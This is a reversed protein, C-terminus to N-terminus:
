LNYRPIEIGGIGEVKGVESLPEDPEHLYNFIFYRLSDPYDDNKKDPVQKFIGRDSRIEKWSYLEIEKLADVLHGSITWKPKNTIPNIQMVEAVKAIGLEVDKRTELMPWSKRYLEEILDPRAPDPFIGQITLGKTQTHMLEDVEGITKGEVGFGDFTFIENNHNIEHWLVATKHGTAFGFDISGYITAEKKPSRRPQIHIPGFDKWVAGQRYTFEALYEQGFMDPSMTKKKKDIEEPDLYTNDYSTFHFSKYDIPDEYEKMFLDYFHNRGNPTSIFIAWGKSETLVPEIVEWAYAKSFAFEDYVIGKLGVGRLKDPDETGKLDIKSGNIFEVSLETENKKTILEKPCYDLLVRWAIMKAQNYTPAIFWYNGTDLAAREILENIAFITKGFRRGCRVVKYRHTDDHLKEQNPHPVYKRTSLIKKIKTYLELSM